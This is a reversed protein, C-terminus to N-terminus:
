GEQEGSGRVEEEGADPAESDFAKRVQDAKESLERRQAISLVGGLLDMPRGGMPVLRLPRSRLLKTGGFIRLGSGDRKSLGMLYARTGIVTWYRICPFWKGKNRGRSTREYGYSFVHM